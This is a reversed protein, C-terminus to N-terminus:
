SPKAIRASATAMGTARRKSFIGARQRSIGGSAKAIVAPEM